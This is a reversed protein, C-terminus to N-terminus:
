ALLVDLTTSEGIGECLYTQARTTPESPQTLFKKLALRVSQLSVLSGLIYLQFMRQLLAYESAKVTIIVKQLVNWISM